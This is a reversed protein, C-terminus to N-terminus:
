ECGAAHSEFSSRRWPALWAALRLAISVKYIHFVVLCSRLPPSTCRIAALDMSAKTNAFWVRMKGKYGRRREETDEREADHRCVAMTHYGGCTVQM